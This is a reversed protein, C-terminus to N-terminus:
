DDLAVTALPGGRKVSGAREGVVDSEVLVYEEAGDRRSRLGADRAREM